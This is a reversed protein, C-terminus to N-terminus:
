NAIFYTAYLFGALIVLQSLKFFINFKQHKNTLNVDFDCSSYTKRTSFRRIEGHFVGIGLTNM